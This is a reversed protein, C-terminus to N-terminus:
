KEEVVVTVGEVEEPDIDSMSQVEAASDWESVM